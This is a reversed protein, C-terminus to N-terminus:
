RPGHPRDLATRVARALAETTFPKELLPIEGEAIRRLAVTDDTYGSMFLVKIAPRLAGLQQALETGSMVPMVVDTLLLHIPGQHARALALGELGNRAELVTYGCLSLLERAVGRVAEEDEAVLVTESGRPLNVRTSQGGDDLEGEVRPLFIKFTAGAGPESEILIDGESQKVIGYVTSLGLGTGKDAAKTTFFPEFVHAQTEADMGCGSDTVALMVYDGPPLAVRLRAPGDAFRVDATAVTIRGGNPMADRANVVLNMVVQEIQGPDAKIRGLGAGPAIVLEIDEGILRSLMKKMHSVVVNLDLVRPVIAQKRSFALLQRTLAAAHNATERILEIDRRQAPTVADNRLLLQARGTIVTILNNFDHAVGGALRGAIEMKQAQRLQDEIQQEHTVDHMGAVYNVVRGDAGRVPFVVAAAHFVTGDKRTATLPGSWAEGAEVGAWLTDWFALDHKDSKLLSPKRGVLEERTYGTLQEMAPNVYEIAGDLGTILISEASQEVVAALRVRAEEAQRYETVDVWSGVIEVPHGAEDRVVRREDHIWRYRGDSHRFRYQESRRGDSVTATWAARARAADDPHLRSTWFDHDDVVEHVAYGLQRHINESISAIAVDGPFPVSYLVAPSSVLLHELRARTAALEEDARKRETIDTLTGFIGLVRGGADTTLQAFVEIWRFGGAKTLYRAEHGFYESRSELLPQFVEAHRMRDEPHVFSLFSKGLTEEVTFGTIETWAANLFKWVGRADTQFIVQKINDVVSRYQQETRRLAEEASAPVGAAAIVDPTM